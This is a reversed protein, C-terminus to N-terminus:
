ALKRGALGELIRLPSKRQDDLCFLAVSFTQELLHAGAMAAHPVQDTYAVWTTGSAFDHRVQEGHAQYDADAKMADHLQLMYSDYASRQRKTIGLGALVWAERRPRRLAPWFRCAVDPFAGGIRWVRPKGHPNVNCCVRLIRQGRMPLSPFSDVHLRTDDKRWSTARGAIEVPRFSTRGIRIGSSYGPLLRALLATSAAAFRALVGRLLPFAACAAGKLHGTSPDYSVNKAGRLVNPSLLEGEAGQLPFALRPLLLVAGDELARVAKTQVEPRHADHWSACPIEFLPPM